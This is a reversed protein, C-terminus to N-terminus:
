KDKNTSKNYERVRNNWAEIYNNNENWLHQLEAKYLEKDDVCREIQLLKNRGEVTGHCYTRLLQYKQRTDQLHSNERALFVLLFFMAIWVVLMGLRWIYLLYRWGIVREVFAHFSAWAGSIFRIYKPRTDEKPPSPEPEKFRTFYDDPLSHLGFCEEEVFEMRRVNIKGFALLAYARVRNCLHVLGVIDNNQAKAIWEVNNFRGSLKKEVANAIAEIDVAGNPVEVKPRPLLKLKDAVATSVIEKLQTSNPIKEVDPMHSKVGNLSTEIAALRESQNSQEELIDEIPDIEEDKLKGKNAM